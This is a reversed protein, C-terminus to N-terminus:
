PVFQVRSVKANDGFSQVDIRMRWARPEQQAAGANSTKVSVAVLVQATDDQVSELGSETISGETTSQSQRVAEIFAQSRNRFDDHFAGTSSDLIRQVDADVHTYNITTLNLAAQRGVRLFLARDQQDQHSQGYQFGFWGVVAGLTAIILFGAILGLRPSSGTSETECLKESASHDIGDEVGEPATVCEDTNAVSSMDLTM